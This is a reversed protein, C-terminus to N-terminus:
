FCLGVTACAVSHQVTLQHLMKSRGRFSIIVFEHCRFSPRLIVPWYILNKYNCRFVLLQNSDMFYINLIPLLLGTCTDCSLQCGGSKSKLLLFFFSYFSIFLFFFHAEFHFLHPSQVPPTDRGVVVVVVVVFSLFSFLPPFPLLFPSLLGFWLVLPLTSAVTAAHLRRQYGLSLLKNSEDEDQSPWRAGCSDMKLPLLPWLVWPVVEVVFNCKWDVAKKNTQKNTQKDAETESSNEHQFSSQFQTKGNINM